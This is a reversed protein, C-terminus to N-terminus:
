ASDETSEFLQVTAPYHTLDEGPADPAQDSSQAYRRVHNNPDMKEATHRAWLIVQAVIDFLERPVPDGEDVDALLQRALAQNRLVPVNSENAADRMARANADEGKASVLPVPSDEKDYRIAIAIHTPNVVLVSAQRAAQTASEQSWEQQLQRRQGKLQPDGENDKHEQKIDQVSMRMKKAYSHHQYAADMAMFVLFIGLTWGFLDIIMHSIAEVINTVNGSPLHVLQSLSNSITLWAVVGLILTKVTSKILEVLNDLSFMKKIGSGPNLNSLKPALKEMAFVPGTQLFEVLMGFLAVPLLVLVSLLLFVSLASMGLQQAAVSFPMNILQIADLILDGLQDSIQGIAMLILASIFAFSLTGSVDKSKPVDGKKRAERLRKPTAPETKEGSGQGQSM